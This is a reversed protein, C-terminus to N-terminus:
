TELQMYIQNSQAHIKPFFFLKFFNAHESSEDTRLLLFIMLSNNCIPPTLTNDPGIKVGACRASIM